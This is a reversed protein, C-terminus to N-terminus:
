TNGKKVAALAAHVDNAWPEGVFQDLQGCKFMWAVGELAEVLQQNVPQPSAYLNHEGDPMAEMPDLWDILEVHKEAEGTFRSNKTWVRVRAVPEGATLEDVAAELAARTNWEIVARKKADEIAADREMNLTDIRTEGCQAGCYDCETVMWRFTSGEHHSIGTKGCFPCPMITEKNTM